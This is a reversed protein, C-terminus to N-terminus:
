VFIRKSSFNGNILLSTKNLLDEVDIGSDMGVSLVEYPKGTEDLIGIGNYFLEAGGDVIIATNNDISLTSLVNCITMAIRRESGDIM